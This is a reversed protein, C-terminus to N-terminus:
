AWAGRGLLRKIQYPGFQELPLTALPDAAFASEPLGLELLSEGLGDEALMAEADRRLIVDDGCEAALYASRELAPLESAQHFIEQLREWRTKDM